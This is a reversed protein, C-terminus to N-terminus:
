KSVRFRFFEPFVSKTPHLVVLEWDKLNRSRELIIQVDGTPGQVVGIDALAFADRTKTYVIIPIRSANAPTSLEIEIPGDFEETGGILGVLALQEAKRVKVTVVSLPKFFRVIEGTRLILVNTQGEPVPLMEIGALKLRSYSIVVANTFIMEMPGPFVFPGEKVDAGRVFFSPFLQDGIRVDVNVHAGWFQSNGTGTATRFVLVEGNLAQLRNTANSPGIFTEAFCRSLSLILIFLYRAKM